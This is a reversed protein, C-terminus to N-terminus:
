PPTGGGQRRERLMRLCEPCTVAEPVDIWSTGNTWRGCLPVVTGGNRKVIGLHVVDTAM